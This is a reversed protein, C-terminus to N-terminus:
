RFLTLFGKFIYEKNDSRAELVYYYTGEGAENGSNDFGDWAIEPATTEFMINGWRNYIVFHYERVGSNPIYFLDNNGDGNPTFVNPVNIGEIISILKFTSDLCGNEDKVYMEVVFDGVEEFNHRTIPSSASNGDGFNWFWEVPSGLTSDRFEITQNTFAETADATFNALPGPNVTLLFSDAAEVCKATSSTASLQIYGSEEFVKVILTDNGEDSLMEMSGPVQWQFFRTNGTARLMALSNSCVDDDGIVEPIGPIRDALIFPLSDQSYVELNAIFVSLFNNGSNVFNSNKNLNWQGTGWQAIYDYVDDQLPDYYIRMRAPTFSSLSRNVVHYYNPNVSCISDGLSFQDYGELDPSEHAFRVTYTNINNDDPLIDVPRYIYPASGPPNISSGVPYLYPTASNATRRSLRGERTDGKLSSVFGIENAVTSHSISTPLTSLVSMTFSDTALERNTLALSDQVFADITMRKVRDPGIIGNGSLSLQYFSTVATGTILQNIDSMLHVHSEDPIFLPSNNTWDPEIEYYGNGNVRTFNDLIFGRDATLYISDFHVYIEGNNLIESAPGTSVTKGYVQVVVGSDIFIKGANHVLTNHANLIQSYLSHGCLLAIFLFIIQKVQKM